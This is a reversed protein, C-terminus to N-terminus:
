TDKRRMSAILLGNDRTIGHRGKLFLFDGKWALLLPKATNHQLSCLEAIFSRVSLSIIDRVASLILPFCCAFWKKPFCAYVGKLDWVAPPLRDSFEEAAAPMQGGPM